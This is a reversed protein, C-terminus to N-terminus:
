EGCLHHGCVGHRGTEYHGRERTATSIGGHMEVSHEPAGEFSTIGSRPLPPHAACTSVLAWPGSISTVNPNFGKAAKAVLAPVPAISPAVSDAIAAGQLEKGCAGGM